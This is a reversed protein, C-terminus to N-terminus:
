ILDDATCGLAKTILKLTPLSPTKIGSEYYSVMAGSVGIQEGLEKQTLDRAHRLEVLKETNM